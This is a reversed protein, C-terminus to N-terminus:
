WPKGKLVIHKNRRVNELFPDNHKIKKKFEEQLYFTYNIERRIRREIPPIKKILDNEIGADTGVILVDIDSDQRMVGTAYSGYILVSSIEPMGEFIVRLQAEVGVSMLVISKIENLLPYKDNLKFLRQNGYKRSTVIGQMELSNIGKQFVGPLKGIAEGIESLYFENEPRSFFLALIQAQNKTLLGVSM